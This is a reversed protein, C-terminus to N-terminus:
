LAADYIRAAALYLAFFTRAGEDLDLARQVLAAAQVDGGLDQLRMATAAVLHSPPFQMALDPMFYRDRMADDGLLQGVYLGWGAIKARLDTVEGTDRACQEILASAEHLKGYLVARVVGSLQLFKFTVPLNKERIIEESRRYAQAFEEAYGMRVLGSALNALIIAPENALGADYAISSARHMLDIYAAVNGDRSALTGQMAYYTVVTRVDDSKPDVDCQALIAAGQSFEGRMLHLQALATDARHQVSADGFAKIRSQMELIPAAPDPEGLGFRVAALETAAHCEGELDGAALYAAKAKELADKARKKLGLRGFAQGMTMLPRAARGSATEIFALAYSYALTAEEYAFVSMAEDGAQVGYTFAREGDRAAWWHYALDHVNRADPVSELAMATRRHLECAQAELLTARVAERTLAHAFAFVGPEEEVILHLDRAVRLSALLEEQSLQLIRALMEASFRRGLISAQALVEQDAPPLAHFREQLIARVAFPIQADRKTSVSHMVESRLLEEAFLPNGECLRVIRRRVDLPVNEGADQLLEGIVVDSLPELIIHTAQPLRHLRVLAKFAPSEEDPESSRHTAVVLLRMSAADSVIAELLELTDSTAWHLDEIMLVASRRETLARMRRQIQAFQEARSLAPQVEESSGGLRSLGDLVASYPRNTSERCQAVAVHLRASDLENRFEALLRSKGAGPEGSILVLGGRGASAERRRQLLHALEVSRGRFSRFAIATALM